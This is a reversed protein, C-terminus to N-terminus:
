PTPLGHEREHVRVPFPVKAVPAVTGNRYEVEVAGKPTSIVAQKPARPSSLLAHKPRLHLVGDEWTAGWAWSDFRLAGAVWDYPKGGDHTEPMDAAQNWFNLLGICNASEAPDRDAVATLALYALCVARQLWGDDRGQERFVRNMLRMFALAQQEEEPPLAGESTEILLAHLGAQVMPIYGYSVQRAVGNPGCGSQHGPFYYELQDYSRRAEALIERARQLYVQEGTCEYLALLGSCPLADRGVFRHPRNTCFFRYYADATFRATELLYPDGTEWYAYVLEMWQMYPQVLWQWSYKPLEHVTFDVHDIAIDAWWYAPLLAHLCYRPRDTARGLLLMAAGMTGDQDRSSCGLEFPGHRPHPEFYEEGVELARPVAWWSVPLRGQTPLAGCIAHWWGPAEYRAVEPALGAPSLTFRVTRAAGRPILREGLKAVWYGDEAGRSADRVIREEPIGEREVLLEGYIEQDKWPQLVVVEGETALSGPRRADAYGASPGLNLRWGGLEFVARSGDLTHQVQPKGPVDFAIVPVGHTDRGVGERQHNVFHAYADMVGNAFLVLYVDGQVTTEENYIPGGCRLIDCVPGRAVFDARIFQWWYVRDGRRLGLRIGIRKNGKRLNLQYMEYETQELPVNRLAAVYKVDRAINNDLLEYDWSWGASSACKLSSPKASMRDPLDDVFYALVRSPAGSPRLAVPRIQVTQGGMKVVGSQFARVLGADLDAPLPISAMAAAARRGSIRQLDPWDSAAGRHEPGSAAPVGAQLTTLLVLLPVCGRSLRM